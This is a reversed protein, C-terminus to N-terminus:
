MIIIITIAANLYNETKVMKLFEIFSINTTDHTCVQSNQTYYIVIVHLNIPQSSFFKSHERAIKFM